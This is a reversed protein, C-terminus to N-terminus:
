NQLAPDSTEGGKARGAKKHGLMTVGKASRRIDEALAFALHRYSIGTNEPYTSYVM